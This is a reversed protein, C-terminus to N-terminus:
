VLCELVEKQELCDRYVKVGWRVKVERRDQRGKNDQLGPTAM